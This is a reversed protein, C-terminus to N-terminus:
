ARGDLTVQVTGSGLRYVLDAGDFDILPRMNSLHFEALDFPLM